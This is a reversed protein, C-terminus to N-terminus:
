NGNDTWDEVVLGDVRSFEAVNNTVMVLGRAKSQAAILLDYHGTPSVSAQEKAAEKGQEKNGCRPKDDDQRNQAEV